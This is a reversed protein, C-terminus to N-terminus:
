WKSWIKKNGDQKRNDLKKTCLYGDKGDTKFLFGKKKYLKIAPQNDREVGLIITDAGVQMAYHELFDLLYSAHGQGYFQRLVVLQSIFLVIRIPEDNKNFTLSAIIEDEQKIFFVTFLKNKMWLDIVNQDIAKVFKSELAVKNQFSLFDNIDKKKLIEVKM